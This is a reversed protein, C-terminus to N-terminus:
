NGIKVMKIVQIVKRKVMELKPLYVSNNSFRNYIICWVGEKLLQKSNQNDGSSFSRPTTYFFFFIKLMKIKVFLEKRTREQGILSKQFICARPLMVVWRGLITKHRQREDAVATDFSQLM